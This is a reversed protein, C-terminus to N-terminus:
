SITYFIYRKPNLIIRPYKTDGVFVANGTNDYGVFYGKGRLSTKALGTKAKLGFYYFQGLILQRSQTEPKMEVIM